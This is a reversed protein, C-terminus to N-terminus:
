LVRSLLIATLCLCISGRVECMYISDRELARPCVAFIKLRGSNEQPTAHYDVSSSSSSDEAGHRLPPLLSHRQSRRNRRQRLFLQLFPFSSLFRFLHVSFRDVVPTTTPLFELATHLPSSVPRTMWLLGRGDAPSHRHEAAASFSERLRLFFARYM